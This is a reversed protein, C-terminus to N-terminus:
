EDGGDLEEAFMLDSYIDPIILKSDMCFDSDGLYQNMKEIASLSSNLCDKEDQIGCDIGAKTIDRNEKTGNLRAQNIHNSPLHQVTRNENEGHMQEEKSGTAFVPNTVLKKISDKEITKEAITNKNPTSPMLLFLLFVIMGFAIVPKYVPVFLGSIYISLDPSEKRHKKRFATKLNKEILSDPQIRNKETNFITKSANLFKHMEMYEEATLTQLVYEKESVSLEKFTKGSLLQELKNEM